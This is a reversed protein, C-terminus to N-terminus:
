RAFVYAAGAGVKGAVSTSRRQRGAGHRGVLAVSTGFQDCAAGDPATLRVPATWIGASRTFVYAAGAIRAQGRDRTGPAGM